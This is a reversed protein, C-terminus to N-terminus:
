PSGAPQFEAWRHNVQAYCDAPLIALHQLFNINIQGNGTILLIIEQSPDYRTLTQEVQTLTACDLNLKQLHDAVQSRSFFQLQHSVADVSWDVSTVNALEVDCVVMGRGLSLFGQWATYGIALMNQQIFLTQWYGFSGQWISDQVRM